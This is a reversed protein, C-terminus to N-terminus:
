NNQQHSKLKQSKPSIHKSLIKLWLIFNRFISKFDSRQFYIELSIGFFWLFECVGLFGLKIKVGVGQICIKLRLLFVFEM